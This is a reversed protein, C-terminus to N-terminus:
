KSSMDDPIQRLRKNYLRIAEIKHKVCAFCILQNNRKCRSRIQLIQVDETQEQGCFDCTYIAGM